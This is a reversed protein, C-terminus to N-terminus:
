WLAGPPGVRYFCRAGPPLRLHPSQLRRDLLLVMGYGDPVRGSGNMWTVLDGASVVLLLLVCGCGAGLPANVENANLLVVM